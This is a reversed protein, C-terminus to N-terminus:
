ERNEETTGARLIEAGLRQPWHELYIRERDEERLPRVVATLRTPFDFYGLRLLASQGTYFWDNIKRPGDFLEMREGLWDLRLLWDQGPRRPPYDICLDYVACNEAGSRRQLRVPAVAPAHSRRYRTFPGDAGEEAFGRPPAPLT